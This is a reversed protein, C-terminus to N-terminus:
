DCEGKEWKLVGAAGAHCANGYTEGDCGCVPEYVMPCVADPNVKDPDICQESQASKSNSCSIALVSAISALLVIKFNM